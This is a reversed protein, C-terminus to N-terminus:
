NDLGPCNESSDQVSDYPPAQTWIIDFHDSPYDGPDAGLAQAIDSLAKHEWSDVTNAM